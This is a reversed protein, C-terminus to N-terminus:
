QARLASIKADLEQVAAVLLPILKSDAMGLFENEGSGNQTVVAGTYDRGTLAARVDQWLLEGAAIRPAAQDIADVSYKLCLPIVAELARAFLLMSAGGWFPLKYRHYYPLLRRLPSSM